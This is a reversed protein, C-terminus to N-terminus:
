GRPRHMSSCPPWCSSLWFWRSAHQACSVGTTRHGARDATHRRACPVEAAGGRLLDGAGHGALRLNRCRRRAWPASMTLGEQDLRHALDATWGEIEDVERPPAAVIVLEDIGLGALASVDDPHPQRLAVALRLEARDRGAERCLRDILEVRGAVAAVDDLNFGYWGDGWAAVRACRPM